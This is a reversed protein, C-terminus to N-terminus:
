TSFPWCQVVGRGDGDVGLVVSAGYQLPNGEYVVMDTSRKLGLIEELNSSVLSVAQDDSLGAYQAAWSAEHLLNHIFSGGGVPEM